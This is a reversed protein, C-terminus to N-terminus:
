LLNTRSEKFVSDLNESVNKSLTSTYIIREIYKKIVEECKDVVEDIDDVLSSAKEPIIIKHKKFSCPKITTIAKIQTQIPEKNQNSDSSQELNSSM